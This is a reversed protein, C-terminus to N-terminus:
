GAKGVSTNTFFRLVTNAVGLGTMIMGATQSSMGAGVWDAALGVGILATAVNLLITRYGKM